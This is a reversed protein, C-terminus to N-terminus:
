PNKSPIPFANLDASDPSNTVGAQHQWRPSFTTSGTSPMLFARRAAGPIEDHSCGKSLLAYLM